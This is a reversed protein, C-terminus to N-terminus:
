KDKILRQCFLAVGGAIAIISLASLIQSIIGFIKAFRSMQGALNLMSAGDM